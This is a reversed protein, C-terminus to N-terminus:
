ADAVLEKPAWHKATRIDFWDCYSLPAGKKSPKTALIDFKAIL